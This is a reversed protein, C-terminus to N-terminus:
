DFPRDLFVLNGVCFVDSNNMALDTEIIADFLVLSITLILSNPEYDVLALCGALVANETLPTLTYTNHKTTLM